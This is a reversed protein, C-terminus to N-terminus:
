NEGLRHEEGLRNAAPDRWWCPLRGGWCPHQASTSRRTSGECIPGHPSGERRWCPLRGGGALTSPQPAEAPAARASLTMPAGWAGAQTSTRQGPSKPRHAAEPAKKRANVQPRALTAAPPIKQAPPRPTTSPATAPTAPRARAARRGETVPSTPAKPHRLPPEPHCASPHSAPLGRPTPTPRTRQGHPRCSRRRKSTRTLAPTPAPGRGTDSRSARNCDHHLRHDRDIPLHPGSRAFAQATKSAPTPSARPRWKGEQPRRQPELLTCLVM